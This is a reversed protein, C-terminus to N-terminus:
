PNLQKGFDPAELGARDQGFTYMIGQLLLFAADGGFSFYDDFPGPINIPLMEYIFVTAPVIAWTNSLKGQRIMWLCISFLIASGICAPATFAEAGVSVVTLIGSWLAAVPIPLFIDVTSLKRTTLLVAIAAVFGLALVCSGAVVGTKFSQASWGILFALFSLPFSVLGLLLSKWM